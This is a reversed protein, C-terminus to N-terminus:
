LSSKYYRELETLAQKLNHNGIVRDAAQRYLPERDVFLKELAGEERLLPRNDSLSTAAKLEELSRYIYVIRGSHRMLDVNEPKLIIGGGTAIIKSKGQSVLLLAKKEWDRFLEEGGQCLIDEIKSAALETVKNDTDCFGLGLKRALLNGLTSKGCGPMGTLYLHGKDMKCVGAAFRRM